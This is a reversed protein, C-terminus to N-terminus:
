PNVHRRWDQERQQTNCDESHKRFFMNKKPSRCNTRDCDCYNKNGAIQEDNNPQNKSSARKIKRELSAFNMPAHKPTWSIYLGNTVLCRQSSVTQKAALGNFHVRM